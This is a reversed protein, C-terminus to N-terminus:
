NDINFFQICPLYKLIILSIHCFILEGTMVESNNYKILYFNLLNVLLNFSFVNEKNM